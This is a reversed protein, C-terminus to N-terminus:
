TSTRRRLLGLAAVCGVFAFLAVIGFAPALDSSPAATQVDFGAIAAALVAVGLPSGIAFSTEEIGAALGADAEDVDTLAAIQSAVFACGMGLGFLLLGPVVVTYGRAAVGTLLLSGCGILAMGGAAVVRYGFRGVLAQGISVAVVSTGTMLTMTLGFRLATYGLLTQAYLTFLYLMGDVSMGAILVVVNGVVLASSRFVRSPILPDFTRREVLLFALLGLLAITFAVITHVSAWGRLPASVIAYVLVAVALTILVAGTLDFSRGMTVPEQDKPILLPGVVLVSSGLPVNIFFIWEWGLFETIPGALLLGATAGIGGLGGWVGLARNRDAGAEFTNILIALAAPTVIAAAVGQFTRATILIVPSWALGCLLSACVFLGTGSCFMRRRGFRDALRGGLLLLGGSAVAFATVIWHLGGSAFLLDRQISPLATFVSTSDTVVTFFATCLMALVFWRRQLPQSALTM